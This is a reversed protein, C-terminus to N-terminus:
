NLLRQHKKYIVCMIGSGTGIAKNKSEKFSEVVFEVNPFKPKLLKLATDSALRAKSEDLVGSVFSIIKIKEIKGQELITISKLSVLPECTLIAEGKGVPYFGRKKLELNCKVGFKSLIPRFVHIFYDAQPAMIANTGGKLIIETNGRGFVLCPLITQIVM